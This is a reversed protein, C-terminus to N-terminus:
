QQLGRHMNRPDAQQLRIISLKSKEQIQHDNSPIRRDWTNGPNYGQRLLAYNNEM